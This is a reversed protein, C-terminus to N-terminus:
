LRGTSCTPGILASGVGGDSIPRMAEAGAMKEEHAVAEPADGMWQQEILTYRRGICDIRYQYRVRNFTITQITQADEVKYIDPTRNTIQIWVDREGTRPNCSISFPNFEIKGGDTTARLFQWPSGIGRFKEFYPNPTCDIVKARLAAEAANREATAAGPMTRPALVAWLGVAVIAIAGFAIWRIRADM